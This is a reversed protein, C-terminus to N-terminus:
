RRRDHTQEVALVDHDGADERVRGQRVGDGPDGLGFPGRDDEGPGSAAEAEGAPRGALEVALDVHQLQVDGDGLM